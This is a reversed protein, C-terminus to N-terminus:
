RYGYLKLVRLLDKRYRAAGKKTGLSGRKAQRDLEKLGVSGKGLLYQDAVYSAVVGGAVNISGEPATSRSRLLKLAEKANARIVSPFKRTVDHIRHDAGLAFVAPVPFSAAHATYRDEFRADNADIETTGDGDLDKLEYGYSGWVRDNKRYTTGDFVYLGMVSCCHAGGSFGNFVVEPEGDKDLDILQLDSKNDNQIVCIDECFEPVKTELVTAGNREIRIKPNSAGFDGDDWSLTAKVAGSAVTESGAKIPQQAAAPAATVALAVVAGALTRLIM